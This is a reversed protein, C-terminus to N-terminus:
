TSYEICDRCPVPSTRVSNRSRDSISAANSFVSSGMAPLGAVPFDTAPIMLRKTSSRKPVPPFSICCRTRLLSPFTELNTLFLPIIHGECSLSNTPSLIGFSPRVNFNTSFLGNLLRLLDWHFSVRLFVELASRWHMCQVSAKQSLISQLTPCLELTAVLEGSASRQCSRWCNVIHLSEVLHRSLELWLWHFKLGPWECSWQSYKSKRIGRVSVVIIVRWLSAHCHEKCFRALSRWLISLRKPTQKVKFALLDFLSHEGSGHRLQVGEHLAKTWTLKETSQPHAYGIFNCVDVHPSIRLVQFSYCSRNM